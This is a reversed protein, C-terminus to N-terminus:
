VIGKGKSSEPDLKNMMNYMAKPGGANDVAKATFVFEGNSLMAPIKDEKPGGPGDIMGLKRPFFATIGPDEKIEDMMQKGSMRPDFIEESVMEDMIGGTARAPIIGSIKNNPNFPMAGLGGTGGMKLADGGMNLQAIGGDAATEIIRGESDYQFPKYIEFRDKAFPSGGVPSDYKNSVFEYKAKNEAQERLIDEREQEYQQNALFANIFPLLDKIGGGGLLSKGLTQAGGLLGSGEIAQQHTLPGTAGRAFNGVLNRANGFLTELGFPKGGPMAGSGFGLGLGALVALPNDGAFSGIDTIGKKVRDRVKRFIKKLM